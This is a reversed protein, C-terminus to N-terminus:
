PLFEGVLCMTLGYVLEEDYAVEPADAVVLEVTIGEPLETTSSFVSNFAVRPVTLPDGTFTMPSPFLPEGDILVQLTM